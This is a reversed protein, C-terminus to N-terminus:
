GRTLKKSVCLYDESEKNYKYKSVYDNTQLYLDGDKVKMYNNDYTLLFDKDDPEIGRVLADEEIYKFSNLFKTMRAFEFDPNKLRYIEKLKDFSYRQTNIDLYCIGYENKNSYFVKESKVVELSNGKRNMIITNSQNNPLDIYTEAIRDAQEDILVVENLNSIYLRVFRKPLNYKIYDGKPSHVLTPNPLDSLLTISLVDDLHYQNKLIRYLNLIGM